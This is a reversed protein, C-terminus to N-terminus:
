KTLALLSIWDIVCFLVSAPVYPAFSLQDLLQIPLAFSSIDSSSAWHSFCKCVLRDWFGFTFLRNISFFLFRFNTFCFCQLFHHYLCARLFCRDLSSLLSLNETEFVLLSFLACILTEYANPWFPPNLPPTALCILTLLLSLFLGM